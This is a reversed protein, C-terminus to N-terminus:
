KPSSAILCLKDWWFASFGPQNSNEALHRWFNPASVHSKTYFSAPTRGKSGLFAPGVGPDTQAKSRYATVVM